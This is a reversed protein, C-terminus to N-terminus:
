KPIKLSQKSSIPINNRITYISIMRKIITKSINLTSRTHYHKNIYQFNRYLRKALYSINNNIKVGNAHICM